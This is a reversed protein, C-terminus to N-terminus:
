KCIEAKPNIQCVAKKLIEIQAQQQKIVEQQQKVANVLAATIRDYKVGEVQGQENHTVLLPEVKAVEEAAFGVDRMGDQKWNFTIPRLRNILELGSAFEAVREKYRLSSSCTSLQNSANRCVDEAGAGGLTIVRIIGNVHLRDAPTTTGIGVNVTATAGGVGNVSGLVLSDSQSVMARAGIATANTLNNFLVDADRGIMTNDSGTANFDGAAFGFFSNGGGTNFFGASRGFFSNLEATTNNFGAGVGFFSNDGGTTNAQGADEGFFANDTGTTNARGADVGFFANDSGTTNAAGANAGMFTNFKGEALGPAPDPTTNVGANEGVFTNSAALITMGTNFPGSVDLVRLGEINYQTSTNIVGSVDLRHQPATTGIGVNVTATAGNVGNVSGLVM